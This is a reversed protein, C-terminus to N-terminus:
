SVFLIEWSALPVGLYYYKGFVYLDLYDIIVDYLKKYEDPLINNLESLKRM